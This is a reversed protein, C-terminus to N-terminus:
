MSSLKKVGLGGSFSQDRWNPFSWGDTVICQIQKGSDTVAPQAAAPRTMFPPPDNWAPGSSTSPTHGPGGHDPTHQFGGAPPLGAGGGSTSSQSATRSRAPFDLFCILFIIIQTIVTVANVVTWSNQGMKSGSGSIHSLIKFLFYNYLFINQKFCLYPVPVKWIYSFLPM